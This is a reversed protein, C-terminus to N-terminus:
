EGKGKLIQENSNQKYIMKSQINQRNEKDFHNDKGDGSSPPFSLFISVKLYKM